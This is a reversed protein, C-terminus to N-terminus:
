EAAQAAGRQEPGIVRDLIWNAIDNLVTETRCLPAMAAYPSVIGAFQRLSIDVDERVVMENRRYYNQAIEEFDDRERAAKPFLSTVTLRSTTASLPESNFVLAGDNGLTMMVSPRLTVFFTGKAWRAEIQPMPPFGEYGPFPLLLQSGEHHAFAATVTESGLEIRESTTKWRALSDAHVTPIHYGDMYNEVFCKWNAAMEYVVQRGVQMEEIRHSALLPALGGVHDALSEEGPRFRIFLFGAWSDSEIEILGYDKRKAADIIAAGDKDAYNPAALLEGDLGFTWSHYPCRFARCNGDGEALKAGRHRCSNAFVRVKEDSGRAVILPVKMFSLARYDGRKPVCDLRTLLNWGPLFLREMEAQFFRDSRYCWLPLTAPRSGAARVEAYRHPALLDEPEKVGFAERITDSM